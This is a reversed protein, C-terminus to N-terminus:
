VNCLKETRDLSCFFDRIAIDTVKIILNLWYVLVENRTDNGHYFCACYCMELLLIQENKNIKHNYLYMTFLM